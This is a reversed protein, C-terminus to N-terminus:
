LGVSPTGGPSVYYSQVHWSIHFMCQCGKKGTNVQLAQLLMQTYAASAGIGRRCSCDSRSFLLPWPPVV